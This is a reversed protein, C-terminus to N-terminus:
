GFAGDEEDVAVRLGRVLEAVDDGREGVGAVGDDGRVVAACALGRVRAGAVFLHLHRRVEVVEEGRVELDRVGHVDDAVVDAAHHRVGVGRAERVVGGRDRPALTRQGAGGDVLPQDLLLGITTQPM